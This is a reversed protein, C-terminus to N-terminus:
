AKEELADMLAGLQFRTIVTEGNEEPVVAQWFGRHEFHIDVQPHDHRYSILREVNDPEGFLVRLPSDM